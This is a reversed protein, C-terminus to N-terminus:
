RLQAQNMNNQFTIIYEIDKISIPRNLNLEEQM